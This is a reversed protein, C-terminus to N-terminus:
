VGTNILTHHKRKIIERTIIPDESNVNVYVKNQPTKIKISDRTVKNYTM